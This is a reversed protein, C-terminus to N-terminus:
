NRIQCCVHGFMSALGESVTRQDINWYKGPNTASFGLLIEQTGEYYTQHYAPLFAGFGPIHWNLYILTINWIPWSTRQEIAKQM